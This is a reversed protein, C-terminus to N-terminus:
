RAGKGTTISAKPLMPNLGKIYQEIARFRPNDRYFQETFRDVTAKAKASVAENQLVKEMWEANIRQQVQSRSQAMNLHAQERDKLEVAELNRLNQEQTKREMYASWAKSLGMGEPAVSSVTTSSGPLSSGGGQQYALIPNLGALRMDEMTWQYRNRMSKEQFERNQRAIDRNTRNAREASWISLGTDALKLGAQVAAGWGESM